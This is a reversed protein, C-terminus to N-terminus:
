GNVSNSQMSTYTSGMAATDVSVTKKHKRAGKSELSDFFQQARLTMPTPPKDDEVESDESVKESTV